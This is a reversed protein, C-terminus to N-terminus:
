ANTPPEKWPPKWLPLAGGDVGDASTSDDEYRRKNLWNVAYPRFQTPREQIELSQAKLAAVIQNKKAESTAHRKFAELAEAKDQKRWFQPWFEEDFWKKQLKSLTLLTDADDSASKNNNNIEEKYLPASETPTRNMKPLPGTGNRCRNQKRVPEAEAGTESNLRDQDQVLDAPVTFRRATGKGGGSGVIFGPKTLEPIVRMVSRKDLGVLAGIEQYSAACIGTPRALFYIAGWVLKAEASISAHLVAAAIILFRMLAVYGASAWIVRLHDGV